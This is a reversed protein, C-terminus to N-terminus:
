EGEIKRDEQGCNRRLWALALEMWSQCSEEVGSGDLREVLPSALSLGHPGEPFIHLEVPVNAELLARAMRLSNDVPVSADQATHWLFCPPTAETVQRELSFAEKEEEFRDGLLQYFSELHGQPDMATIVPYSLLLGAPRLTTKEARLAECLWDRNWFVGLMGALHGGASSGHVFIREGDVRWEEAHAHLLKMVEGLELLPTPFRAPDISYRLVCAHYGQSLFQMALPEGERYSLKHYGGGPCIVVVPRKQIKIKEVPTDLLYLEARAHDQSGEARIPLELYRM